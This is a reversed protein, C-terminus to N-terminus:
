RAPSTSEFDMSRARNVGSGEVPIGKVRFM